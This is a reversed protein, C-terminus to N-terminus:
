MTILIAGCLLTIIALQIGVITTRMALKQEYQATLINIRNESHKLLEVYDNALHQNTTM